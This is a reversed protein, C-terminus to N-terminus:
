IFIRIVDWLYRIKLLVIYLSTYVMINISDSNIQLIEVNLTQIAIIKPCKLYLNQKTTNNVRPAFLITNYTQRRNETYTQPM